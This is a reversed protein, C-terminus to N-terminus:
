TPNKLAQTVQLSYDHLCSVNETVLRGVTIGTGECLQSTFDYVPLTTAVVQCGQPAVACGSIVGLLIAVLLITTIKKMFM